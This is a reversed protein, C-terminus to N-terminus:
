PIRVSGRILRLPGEKLSEEIAETGPIPGDAKVSKLDLFPNAVFTLTLTESFSMSHRALGGFQDVQIFRPTTFPPGFPGSFTNIPGPTFASLGFVENFYEYDAARNNAIDLITFTIKTQGPSPLVGPLDPLPVTLTEGDVIRIRFERGAFVTNPNVEPDPPVPPGIEPPFPVTPTALSQGLFIEVRRNRRRDQETRPNAIILRTAGVGSPPAFMTRDLATQGKPRLRKILNILRERVEAARVKSHKEESLRRAADGTVSLEKDAHGVITVVVIPANTDYSNVIREALRRLKEEEEAPVADHHTSYGFVIEDPQGNSLQAFLQPILAAAM